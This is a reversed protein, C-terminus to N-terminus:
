NLKDNSLMIVMKELAKRRHSIKNKEELSLEAFTENYGAPVFYPDYGFGNSGRSEKIIFGDVIGETNLIKTDDYYVLAAYYYAAPLDYDKLNKLLLENNMKDQVSRDHSGAYRASYVGPENNLCPVCIGSDDSLTPIHFLDYYYKAKILANDYFTVGDEVPEEVEEFDKLSLVHYGIPELMSKVERIKGQNGSAFLLEKKMKIVWSIIVNKTFLFM